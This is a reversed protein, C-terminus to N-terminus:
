SPINYLSLIVPWTNHQNTMEGFHNMRDSSLALRVNRPHNSFEIRNVDFTKWQRADAHHRIKGDKKCGNPAVHWIMFKAERSNSFLHKLCDIVLLYWMVLIKRQKVEEEWEDQHVSGINKKKKRGRKKMNNNDMSGDDINDDNKKYRGANCTPYRVKNTNEKHYL